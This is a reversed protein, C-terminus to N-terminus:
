FVCTTEIEIKPTPRILAAYGILTNVPYNGDFMEEFVANNAAWTEAWENVNTVFTTLKVVDDLTRGERCPHGLNM